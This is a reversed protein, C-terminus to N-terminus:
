DGNEFEEEPLPLYKKVLDLLERRMDNPITPSVEVTGIIQLLIGRRLDTFQRLQRKSFVSYANSDILKDNIEISRRSISAQQKIEKWIVHRVADKGVHLEVGRQEPDFVVALRCDYHNEVFKKNIEFVWYNSRREVWLKYEYTNEDPLPGAKIYDKTFEEWSIKKIKNERMRWLRETVADIMRKFQESKYLYEM